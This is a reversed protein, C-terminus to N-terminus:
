KEDGVQNSEKVREALISTIRHRRGQPREATFNWGSIEIRSGPIPVRGLEKAMYGGITDIDGGEEIEIQLKDALDEIHMRSSIRASNEDILTFEEGSDDYEDAIEGVIEELIDEITIIGATGGYEDVVIALHIQNRQMERLLEAANKSEPVFSAERVHEAITESSESKPHDHVRRVVDKIYAIGIISDIDEGAVPIRSYGSRLFLSLAQRLNKNGEIWVM